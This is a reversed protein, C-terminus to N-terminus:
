YGGGRVRSRGGRPKTGHGKPRPSRIHRDMVKEAVRRAVKEVSGGRAM